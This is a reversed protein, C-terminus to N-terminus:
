YKLCPHHNIKYRSMCKLKEWPIGLDVEMAVMQQPGIEISDINAENLIDRRTDEDLSQIIKRTQVGTAATSKGSSEQIQKLLFKNRRNITKNCVSTSEKIAKPTSTM